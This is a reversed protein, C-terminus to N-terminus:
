AVAAVRMPIVSGGSVGDRPSPFARGLINIAANTDRDLVAGCECAWERDSLQLEKNIEGCENCAKSTYAPDVKKFVIGRKQCVYELIRAFEGWSIDSVKRGWLRMMGRLELDEIGIGDFQDCLEHATKFAWHRRQDAVKRHLRAVRRRADHRNRSGVKKRSLAKSKIRLEQLSQKLYQPSVIEDGNSLSGFTKLGMDIGIPTTVDDENPTSYEADEGVSFFIWLDGIRDRKITVTKIDGTIPRSLAFKYNHKGIRIRNDGLCKWGAQSKFTFSTYLRSKKFRPMRRQGKFFAQWAKDLRTITEQMAHSGLCSWFESRKRLKAIHKMLRNAGLHKGYMRYYRKQLALCHNWISAAAHIQRILHKDRGSRYLRYKLSRRIM